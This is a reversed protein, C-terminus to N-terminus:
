RVEVHGCVPVELLVPEARAFQAQPGVVVVHVHHGAAAGPLRHDDVGGGLRLANELRGGVDSRDGDEGGVPVVVVHLRHVLHSGDQANGEADVRGVRAQGAPHGVNGEDVGLRDLHAFHRQPGNVGRAVRRTRRAEGSGPVEEGSVGQEGAPRTGGAELVGAEGLDDLADLLAEEREPGVGHHVGTVAGVGRDAGLM